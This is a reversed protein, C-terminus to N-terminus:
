SSVANWAFDLQLTSGQYADDGSLGSPWSVTLKYTHSDGGNWTGLANTSGMTNVVADAFPTGTVAGLGDLEEVKLHLRNALNSGAGGPTTGSLALNFVGPVSGTNTVTVTGSSSQGPRMDSINFIASQTGSDKKNNDITLAGATVMNGPSATSATFSAGSGVALGAALLLMMLAGMLKRPNARSVAAIRQM